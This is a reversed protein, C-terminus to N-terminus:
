PIGLCAASLVQLLLASSTCALCPINWHQFLTPGINIVASHAMLTARARHSFSFFTQRVLMPPTSRYRYPVRGHHLSNSLATKTTLSVTTESKLLIGLLPWLINRRSPCHGREQLHKADEYSHALLLKSPPIFMAATRM